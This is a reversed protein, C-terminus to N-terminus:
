RFGSTRVLAWHWVQEIRHQVAVEGPMPWDKKAAARDRVRSIRDRPVRSRKPYTAPSNLARDSPAARAAGHLVDKRKRLPLRDSDMPLLGVRLNSIVVSRRVHRAVM